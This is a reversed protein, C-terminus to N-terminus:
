ASASREYHGLICMRGREGPWRTLPHGEGCRGWPAERSESLPDPKARAKSPRSSIEKDQYITRHNKHVVGTTGGLGGEMHGRPIVMHGRSTGGPDSNDVPEGSDPEDLDFLDVAGARPMALDYVVPRRNGQIHAVFRQDGRRILRSSELTRFARRVSEQSVELEDAITSKALFARTGDASAANALLLLVRFPLAEISHHPLSAAWTSAQWSM